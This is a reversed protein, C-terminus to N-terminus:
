FGFLTFDKALYKEIIEHLNKWHHTRLVSASILTKIILV